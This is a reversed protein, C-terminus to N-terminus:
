MCADYMYTYIYIYIYIVIHLMVYMNNILPAESRGRAIMFVALCEFMFLSTFSTSGEGGLFIYKTM